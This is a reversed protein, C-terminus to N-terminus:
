KASSALHFDKTIREHKHSRNKHLTGGEHPRFESSERDVELKNHGGWLPFAVVVFFSFAAISLIAL